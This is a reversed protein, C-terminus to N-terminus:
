FAQGYSILLWQFPNSYPPALPVAFDIRLNSKSFLPPLVRIGVGVSHYYSFKQEREPRFPDVPGWLGAGDYFIAGGVYMNWIKIGLTRYEFNVKWLNQGALSGSPYGRLGQQAGIYSYKNRSNRLRVRVSTFLHFRGIWILKSVFLAFGSVSLEVWPGALGIENSRPQWRGSLGGGISVIRDGGIWRYEGSGSVDLFFQSGQILDLGPSISFSLSPGWWWDETIGYLSINKMKAYYTSRLRYGLSLYLGSEDPPLVKTRFYERIWPDSSFGKPLNRVKLYFGGSFSFDHRLPWGMSRTFGGEASLYLSRYAKPFTYEGGDPHTFQVAILSVGKEEGPPPDKEAPNQRYFRKQGTSFVLEFNFAWETKLSFLPRDLSLYAYFSRPEGPKLNSCWAVEGAPTKGGCRNQGEFSLALWEFLRWRSGFLRPDYYYQGLSWKDHITFKSLDLQSFGLQLGLRKGRGLFNHETPYFSLKEFVWGSLRFNNSLRLSWVDKTLVLVRVGTSSRGRCTLIKVISFIPMSRLIRESEEIKERQWHEGREFLLERAIIEERTQVHLSNIWKPFSDLQSVIPVREIIIEEIVKGEPAPELELRYKKLVWKILLEEYSLNPGKRKSKEAFGCWPFLILLTGLGVAM